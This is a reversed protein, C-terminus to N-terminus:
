ETVKLVCEFVPKDKALMQKKMNSSGVSKGDWILLLADAVEAMQTNRIPGAKKGFKSWNAPYKQSKKNLVIISFNAGASDIGKADGDIIAPPKPQDKEITLPIEFYDFLFEIFDCTVTINRGGAIILNNIVRKNNM